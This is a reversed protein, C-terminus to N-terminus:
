TEMEAGCNPCYNANIYNGLLLKRVRHITKCESCKLVYITVGNFDEFENLEEWKGIPRDGSPFRKEDLVCESLKEHGMNYLWASIGKRSISDDM